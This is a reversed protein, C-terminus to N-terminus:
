PTEIWEAIGGPLYPRFYAVMRGDPGAQANEGWPAVGHLSHRHLLYAEGPRAPLEIRACTEFVQKRAAQYIETVDVKNMMEPAVGEFAQAFASGLIRHSGEWVVM